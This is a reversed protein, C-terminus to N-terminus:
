WPKDSSGRPVPKEATPQEDVTTTTRRGGIWGGQGAAADAGGGTEDAPTPVVRVLCGKAVGYDEGELLAFSQRATARVVKGQGVPVENLFTEGSDEDVIRETAFLEVALGPLFGAPTGQNILIQRGTVTLVKAPRIFSTAQRALEAAMQKALATLVRDSGQAGGPQALEVNEGLVRQVSPVEPLIAGSTTDVIQLVVSAFIERQLSERGVAAHVTKRSRDEFGDVTPLCVYKAGTMQGLRALNKDNPDVAVQAFAQELELDGKRKREVMRFARTESFATLLQMDLSDSFRQLELGKNERKAYAEVSPPLRIAGIFVTDLGAAQEQAWAPALCAALLLALSLNRIIIPM